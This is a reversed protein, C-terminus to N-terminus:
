RRLAISESHKIAAANRALDLDTKTSQVISTLEIRMQHEDNLEARLMRVEEDREAQLQQLEALLEHVKDDHDLIHNRRLEEEKKAFEDGEEREILVQEIIFM